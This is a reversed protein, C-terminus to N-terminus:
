DRSWKMLEKELEAESMVAVDRRVDDQVEYTRITRRMAKSREANRGQSRGFLWTAGLTFLAAVSAMLGGFGGPITSAILDFM